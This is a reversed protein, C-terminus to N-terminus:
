TTPAYSLQKGQYFNSIATLFDKAARLYQEAFEQSPQQHKMLYVTEAWDGEWSIEGSAIFLEQFNKIIGAQTNTAVEKSTLIAKAGNVFATYSHYISDALRGEELATQAWEGKEEAEKGDAASGVWEMETTEKLLDTIGKRLIPHDDANFVTIPM